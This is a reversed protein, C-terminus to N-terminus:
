PGHVRADLIVGTDVTRSCPGLVRAIHIGLKLSKVHLCSLIYDLNEYKSRQVANVTNNRGDHLSSLNEHSVIIRRENNGLSQPNAREWASAHLYAATHAIRDPRRNASSVNFAEAGGLTAM